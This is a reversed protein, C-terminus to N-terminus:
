RRERIKELPDEPEFPEQLEGSVQFREMFRRDIFDKMRFVWSGALVLGNRWLIGRGDGMNLILMYGGGPRFPKLPRGDLAAALNHYLVPNQRVAMVGVRALTTGRLSICDGGGFIERHATCRLTSDVLLGGDPGTPLGSEEFLPSPRVGVASFALDYDLIRGTELVIEGPEIRRARTAELVHINRSRLSELALARVRPPAGALLREGAVLTIDRPIGAEACLRWLNAAIETGAPGGGLVVLRWPSPGPEALLTQRARVLNEIPKVPYVRPCNRVAVEDRIRSGTNFSVVDYGVSAGGELYLARERPSVRVVRDPVFDGGRGEAMKRINVRTEGPRYFGSLLGPGMGSYYQYASPSILTVRHGVGTIQDLDRLTTMHAHGGGVLVLHKRNRPSM